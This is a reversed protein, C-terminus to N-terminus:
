DKKIEIRPFLPPYSEPRSREVGCSFFKGEHLLNLQLQELSELGGWRASSETANLIKLVRKAETPMVPVFLFASLRLAETAVYLITGARKLDTKVVKWPAQKELYANVARILSMIDEIAENIRLENIKKKVNEDLSEGINKIKEDDEFLNGCEPIVGNFNKAILGSV